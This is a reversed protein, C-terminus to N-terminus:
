ARRAFRTNVFVVWEIILASGVTQTSLTSPCASRIYRSMNRIPVYPAASVFSQKPSEMAHSWKRAIRLLGLLQDSQV